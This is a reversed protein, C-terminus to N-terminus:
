RSGERILPAVRRVKALMPLRPPKPTQQHAARIADRMQRARASIFAPYKEAEDALRLSRDIQWRTFEVLRGFERYGSDHTQVARILGGAFVCFELMNETTESRQGGSWLGKEALEIGVETGNTYASWEDFIYLPEGDWASQGAVYLSYTSDRYAAPIFRAAHSKRCRPEALVIGRNALVYFGNAHGTGKALENRIRSNIGHTTEHAWTVLDSDRYIHGAPMQSEIDCLKDGLRASAFQRVPAVEIWEPEAAHVSSLLALVCLLGVRARRPAAAIVTAIMALTLGGALLWDRSTALRCFGALTTFVLDAM